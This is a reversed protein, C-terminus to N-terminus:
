GSFYSFHPLSYVVYETFSCSLMCLRSTQLSLFNFFWNYFLITNTLFYYIFWMHLFDTQPDIEKLIDRALRFVKELLAPGIHLWLGGTNKKYYMYINFVYYM